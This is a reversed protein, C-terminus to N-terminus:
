PRASSWMGGEPIARASRGLVALLTMFLTAGSRRALDRLGGALEPPLDIEVQGGRWSQVPPRPRDTPLELLTPAGSLERKWHEVLAAQRGGSLRERQWAAFDAYQIPLGPLGKGEPDRYLASLERFFIGMSWGDSVIHHMAIVLRHDDPALRAVALRLLPGAQLDFPKRAEDPLLHDALVQIEPMAEPAIVQAPRGEVEAFTTRLAEHRCVVVAAARALAELDLPGRLRFARVISYATIGPTLQDLFWLREQAFSLPAPGDSARRPIPGDSLGAGRLNEEIFRALGAVTPAEFLAALPVEAGAADRVRSLVRTAMLSHGGLKFFNDHVGVEPIGLVTSWIGALMEELPTSPAGGGEQIGEAWVPEPLARLDVKGNATLPLAPLVVFMSPVMYAPLRGSLFGTLNGAGAGAGAVYAVLTGEGARERVTM